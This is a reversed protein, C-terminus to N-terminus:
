VARRRGHRRVCARAPSRKLFALLTSRIQQRSEPESLASALEPRLQASDAIRLLEARSKPRREPTEQPDVAAGALALDWLGAGRSLYFFLQWAKDSGALEARELLSAFRPEFDSFPLRGHVWAGEEFLDLATWIAAPMYVPSQQSRQVRELAESWASRPASQPPM